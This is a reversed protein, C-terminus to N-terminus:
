GDLPRLAVVHAPNLAIPRGDSADVFNVLELISGRSAAIIREETDELTGEVRYRDGSTVTIETSAM